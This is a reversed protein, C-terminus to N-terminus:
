RLLSHVRGRAAAIRKEREAIQNARSRRQSDSISDQNSTDAATLQSKFGRLSSSMTELVKNAEAARGSRLHASFLSYWADDVELGISIKKSLLAWEPDRQLDNLSELSYRVATTYGEEILAPVLELYIGREGCLFALRLINSKWPFNTAPGSSEPYERELSLIKSAIDAFDTDSCRGLKTVAELKAAWLSANEPMKEILSDLVKLRDGWYANSKQTPADISPMPNEKDWERLQLSVSGWKGSWTSDKNLLSRFTDKDGLTLYGSRIVEALQERRASELMQLRNLDEKIRQLVVSPDEHSGSRVAELYWLDRYLSLSRIDSRMGLNTRMRKVTDALFRSDELSVLLRIPEPSDPCLKMFVQMFAQAKGDNKYDFLGYVEALALYSWPFEPHQELIAQMLRITESTDNGLLSHAYLYTWTPSQPYKNLKARYRRIEVQDAQRPFSRAEISAKHLFFNQANDEALYYLRDRLAERAKYLPLSADLIWAKDILSSVATSPGCQCADTYDPGSSDNPNLRQATKPSSDEHGHNQGGLINKIPSNHGVEVRNAVESTMTVQSRNRFHAAAWILMTALVAVAAFRWMIRGLKAAPSSRSRNEGLDRSHPANNMLNAASIQLAIQPWLDRDPKESLTAAGDLIFRLCSLEERCSQCVALHDQMEQLEEPALSSDVFDDIRNIFAECNM